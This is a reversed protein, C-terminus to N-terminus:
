TSKRNFSNLQLNKLFALFIYIYICVYIYVCLKIASVSRFLKVSSMFFIDNFQEKFFFGFGYTFIFWAGKLKHLYLIRTAECTTRQFLWDHQPVPDVEREQIGQRRILSLVLVVVLMTVSPCMVIKRLTNSKM